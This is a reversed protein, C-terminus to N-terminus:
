LLSHLRVCFFMIGSVKDFCKMGLLYLCQGRGSMIMIIIMLTFTENM